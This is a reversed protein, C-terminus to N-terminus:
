RNTLRRDMKISLKKELSIEKEMLPSEEEVLEDDM